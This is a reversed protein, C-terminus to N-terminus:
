AENFEMLLRRPGQKLADWRMAWSERCTQRSFLCSTIIVGVSRRCLADEMALCVRKREGERRVNVLRAEMRGCHKEFLVGDVTGDSMERRHSVVVVGAFCPLFDRIDRECGVEVGFEDVDVQGWRGLGDEGADETERGEDDEAQSQGSATRPEETGKRAAMALPGMIVETRARRGAAARLLLGSRCRQAAFGVDGDTPPRLLEEVRRMWNMRKAGQSM